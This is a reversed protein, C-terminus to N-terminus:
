PRAGIAIYLTVNLTGGFYFGVSFLGIRLSFIIFYIISFLRHVKRSICISVFLMM